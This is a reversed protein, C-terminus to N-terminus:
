TTSRSRPRPTAGRAPSRSSTRSRAPRSSSRPPTSSEDKYSHTRGGGAEHRPDALAEWGILEGTVYDLAGDPGLELLGREAPLPGDGPPWDSERKMGESSGYVNRRFTTQYFADQDEAPLKPSVLGKALYGLVGELGRLLVPEMEGVSYAQERGEIRALHQHAESAHAHTRLWRRALDRAVGEGFVILHLHPPLVPVDGYALRRGRAELLVERKGRRRAATKMQNLVKRRGDMVEAVRAKLDGRGCPATTLTVLFAPGVDREADLLGDIYPYHREGWQTRRCRYCWPRGCPVSTETGDETTTFRKRCKLTARYKKEFAGGLAILPAVGEVSAKYDDAHRALETRVEAPYDDIGLHGLQPIAPAGGDAGTNDKLM